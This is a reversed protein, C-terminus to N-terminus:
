KFLRYVAIELALFILVSIILHWWYKKGNVIEELQAGEMSDAGSIIKFTGILPSNSLSEHLEKINLFSLDSESRDYNFSIGDKINNNVMVDYHGDHKIQNHLLLNSEQDTIKLEPIFSFDENKSQIFIEDAVSIDRPADVMVNQGITYFYHPRYNSFEAIRLMTPVFLAHKPWNSSAGDLAISFLSLSGKSSSSFTFFPKGDQYTLLKVTSSSSFLNIPYYSNASPLDMNQPINEFVGSFIPHEGDLSSAKNSSTVKPGLELQGASQLFSNYSSLDINTSPYICVSGGQEMFSNLESILGTSLKTINDLVVLNYSKLTSFDFSSLQKNHFIFNPDKGYLVGFYGSSDNMFPGDYLHAIKLSPQIFYSFSFNDDFTISAEPYDTLSLQAHQVGNSHVTYPVKCDLKEGPAITFNVFAQNSGNITLNLKFQLEKESDNIVLAHVLDESGSKRIPTDFWISDIYLNQSGLNEYPICILNLSSDPQIEDFNCSYTQFDSLWYCFKNASENKLLDTQRQYINSFLRSQFTPEIESVLQIAEPKSYLRQHRGEFDHTIIQFQDTAGYQSILKEAQEKALELRYGNVGKSDMSHSNDIFISIVNEGYQKESNTPIYPQCFALVLTSIALLRLLLIILHKLKSKSKTELQVEKLLDINSFYVKQFKRFNFLHIIIPIALALLGWLYEPYMLKM